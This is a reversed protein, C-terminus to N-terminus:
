RYWGSHVGSPTFVAHGHLQMYVFIVIFIGSIEFNFGMNFLLSDAVIDLNENDFVM